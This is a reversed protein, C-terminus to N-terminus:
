QDSAVREIEWASITTSPKSSWNTRRRSTSNCSIAFPLSTPPWSACRTATTGNSEHYARRQAQDVLECIALYLDGHQNRLADAQSSLRPAVSLPEEFYGYAEELAFHMALQDRVRGLLDALQRSPMHMGV